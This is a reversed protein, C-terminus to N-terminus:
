FAIADENTQTVDRVLLKLRNDRSPLHKPPNTTATLGDQEALLGYSLNERSEAHSPIMTETIVVLRDTEGCEYM